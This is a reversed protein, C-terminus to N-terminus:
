EPLCDRFLQTEKSLWDPVVFKVNSEPGETDVTEVIVWEPRWASQKFVNGHKKGDSELRISKLPGLDLAEFTFVDTNNKEFKDKHTSSTALHRPGSRDLEGLVDITVKADTGANKEDMTKVSVKYKRSKREAVKVAASEETNSATLVRPKGGLELPSKLGRFLWQKGTRIEQVHVTELGWSEQAGGGGGGGAAAAVLEVRASTLEGLIPGRETFDDTDGPGFKHGPNRLSMDHSRVSGDKTGELILRVDCKTGPGSAFTSVTIRYDTSRDMIQSAACVLDRSLETEKSLWQNCPFTYTNNTEDEVVEVSACYWKAGSSLKLGKHNDHWIRLKTLQGLYESGVAFVDTNGKEFLDKHTSSAKLRKEGSEGLQGFMNISVRANTGANKEEGTTVRVTYRYPGSGQSALSATSGVSVLSTARSLSSGPVSLNFGGGGSKASKGGLSVAGPSTPSSSRSTYSMMSVADADDDALAKLKRKKLTGKENTLISRCPFVYCHASKRITVTVFDLFWSDGKKQGDHWIQLSSPVGIDSARVVFSDSSGTQFSKIDGNRLEHEGTSTPQGGLAHALELPTPENGPEVTGKTNAFTWESGTGADTIVVTELQWPATTQQGDPALIQASVSVISGLAPLNKEMQHVGGPRFENEVGTRLLEITEERQEGKITLLVEGQADHSRKSTTTVVKYCAIGDGTSGKAQSAEGDPGHRRREAKHGQLEVFVRGSTGSKPKGSTVVLFEYEVEEGRLATGGKAVTLDAQAEAALEAFRKADVQLRLRREEPAGKGLAELAHAAREARESAKHAAKELVAPDQYVALTKHVKGDGKKTSLWQQCPFEWRLQDEAIEVAVQELFWDPKAGVLLKASKKNDHRIKVQKLEGLDVVDTLVFKDTHGREFKDTHLMSKTLPREGTSGNAGIIDIFVNADTGCNKEKGTVVFVAYNKLELGAHTQAKVESREGDETIGLRQKLLLERTTEGGDKKTDTSLWKKCEFEYRENRRTDFLMVKDLHWSATKFIAGSKGVEVRLKYPIGVDSIDVNFKDPPKGEVVGAGRHFHIGGPVEFQDNREV